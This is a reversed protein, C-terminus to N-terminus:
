TISESILGVNVFGEGELTDMVEIFRDYSVEADARILVRNQQPDSRNEPYAADLAETLDRALTERTTARTVAGGISLSNDAAISIFVPKRAQQVGPPAPPLDLKLSTTPAPLSVMFIILLVLMVDVFPTVNIDANQAIVYRDGDGSGSLRTAMLRAEGEAARGLCAEFWDGIRRPTV